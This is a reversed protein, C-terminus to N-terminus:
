FIYLKRVEGGVQGNGLSLCMRIVPFHCISGAFETHPVVLTAPLFHHLVPMPFSLM